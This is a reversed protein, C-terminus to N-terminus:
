YPVSVRPIGTWDANAPIAHGGDRWEREKQQQFNQNWRAQAATVDPTIARAATILVVGSLATGLLLQVFM